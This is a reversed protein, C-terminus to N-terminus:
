FADPWPIGAGIDERRTIPNAMRKRLAKMKRLQEPTLIGKIDLLYNMYKLICETKRASIERVVKEIEKRDVKESKVHSAFRLELVKIEAWQKISAEEFELMKNEIKRQQEKTLGVKEKAELILRADFLDKQAWFYSWMMQEAAGEDFEAAAASGAAFYFLMLTIGIGPLVKKRKM